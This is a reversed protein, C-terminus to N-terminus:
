NIVFKELMNIQEQIANQMSKLDNITDLIEQKCNAWFYGKKRKYVIPLRRELKVKTILNRLSDPTTEFGYEKLYKIIDNYSAGNNEGAHQSLFKVLLNNRKITDTRKRNM